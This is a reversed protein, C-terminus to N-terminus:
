GAILLIVYLVLGAVFSLVGMISAVWSQSAREGSSAEGPDTEEEQTADRRRPGDDGEAQAAARDEGVRGLVFAGAGLVFPLGTLVLVLSALALLGLGFGAQAPRKSDGAERDAWPILFLFIAAAVAVCLLVLLLFRGWAPSEDVALLVINDLVLLLVAVLVAGVGIVLQTQRSM